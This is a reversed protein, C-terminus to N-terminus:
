ERLETTCSFVGFMKIWFWTNTVDTILKFIVFHHTFIELFRIARWFWWKCDPFPRLWTILKPMMLSLKPDHCSRIPGALSAFISDDKKLDCRCDVLRNQTRSEHQWPLSSRRTLSNMLSNTSSNMPWSSDFVDYRVPSCRDPIQPSLVSFNFNLFLDCFYLRSDLSSMNACSTSNFGPGM